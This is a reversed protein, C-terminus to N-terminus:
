PSPLIGHERCFELVLASFEDVKLSCIGHGADPLIQLRARPLNRALIVSGAAGAMKDQGGGVILAPCTIYKLRPTYPHERLGAAARASAVYSDLHEPRVRSGEQQRAQASTTHGAFAPRFEALKVGPGLRAVEGMNYWNESGAVNVESSSSDIVIAPGKDGYELAFQQM